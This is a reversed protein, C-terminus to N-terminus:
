SGAHAPVQLFVWIRVTWKLLLKKLDRYESGDAGVIRSREAQSKRNRESDEAQTECDEGIM